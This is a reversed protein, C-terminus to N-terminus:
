TMSGKLVEDQTMKTIAKETSLKIIENMNIGSLPNLIKDQIQKKSMKNKFFGEDNIIGAMENFIDQYTKNNEKKYDDIFDYVEESSKFSKLGAEDEAFTFIIKSLADLDNENMSQFYLDEFDKGKLLNSINVIKKTTFVLKIKKNKTELIM